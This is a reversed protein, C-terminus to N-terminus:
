FSHAAGGWLCSGRSFFMKNWLCYYVVEESACLPACLDHVAKVHLRGTWYVQTHQACECIKHHLLATLNGIFSLYFYIKLINFHTWVVFKLGELSTRFLAVVVGPSFWPLGTVWLQPLM